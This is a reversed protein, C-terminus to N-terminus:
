QFKHIGLIFIESNANLVSHLLSIISKMQFIQDDLDVDM